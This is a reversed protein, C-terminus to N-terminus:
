GEARSKPSYSYSYSYSSEASQSQKNIVFGLLNLGAREARRVSNRIARLDTQGSETVLVVGDAVKGLVLGDALALLPASDILILDYRSRWLGIAESLQAANLAGLSDQMGQGAPLLHVNDETALVQVNYPDRLASPTDQAGNEGIMSTWTPVSGNLYKQWVQAQTGRRLDADVILVKKGTGALADALTATVSSKGEGPASSTVMIVPREVGQLASLLNVRLFGIAEYLGAQRAARVMGRMMVDRQRLKPLSALTPLGLDLLDDESRVKRDAVAMLTALGLGLLLGAIGALAANRVPQPEVPSLPTIAESLPQLVGSISQELIGVQTLSQQLATQRSALLSREPSGARAAKLEAEVQSLQAEFGQQAQRVSALARDKDWELLSQAALNALTRAAEPTNARGAVTYIGNGYLDLRSTLRVTEMSREALETQLNEILRQQEPGPIAANQAIRATLPGMVSTSQLAQAVAGEPLPPAKVLAEGLVSDAAQASGGTVLLSAQAEYVAPKSRSWFYTLGALALSLALIWPLARKLRHWLTTLDLEQEHSQTM